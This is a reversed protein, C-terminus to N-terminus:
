IFSPSNELISLWRTLRRNYVAAPPSKYLAGIPVTYLFSFLNTSLVLAIGIVAFIISLEALGFGVPVSFFSQYSSLHHLTMALADQPCLPTGTTSFPCDGQMSGDVGYSMVAFSFFAVMLFSLLLLPAIIRKVPFKM